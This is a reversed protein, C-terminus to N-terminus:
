LANPINAHCWTTRPSSENWGCPSNRQLWLIQFRDLISHYHVSLPCDEISNQWAARAIADLLMPQARLGFLKTPPENYGLSWAYLLQERGHFGHCLHVYFFELPRSKDVAETHVRLRFPVFVDDLYEILVPWDHDRPHDRVARTLNQKRGVSFCSRLYGHAKCSHFNIRAIFM